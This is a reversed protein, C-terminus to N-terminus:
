LNAYHYKITKTPEATHVDVWTEAVFTKDSDDYKKRKQFVWGIHKYPEDKLDIYVKSVCRGHEKVLDRYLEGKDGTFSEYVESEGLGWREQEGTEPNTKIETWNESIFLNSMARQIIITTLGVL